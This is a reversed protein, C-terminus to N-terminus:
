INNKLKNNEFDYEYSMMKEMEETSFEFNKEPEIEEVDWEFQFLKTPSNFSKDAVHPLMSLYTWLRKQELEFKIKEFLLSKYVRKIADVGRSQWRWLTIRSIKLFKSIKVIGHQLILNIALKRIEIHYTM